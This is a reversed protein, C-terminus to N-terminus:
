TETERQGMFIHLNGLGDNQPGFVGNTFESLTGYKGMLTSPGDQTKGCWEVLSSSSTGTTLNALNALRRLPSISEPFGLSTM